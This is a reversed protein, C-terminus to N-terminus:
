NILRRRRNIFIIVPSFVQPLYSNKFTGFTLSPIITGFFIFFVCRVSKFQLFITFPALFMSNM